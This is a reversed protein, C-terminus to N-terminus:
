RGRAPARLAGGALWAHVADEAEAYPAMLEDANTADSPVEVAEGPVAPAGRRMWDADFAGREDLLLTNADVHEHLDDFSSVAPIRSAAYLCAVALKARRTIRAVMDEHTPPAAPPTTTQM